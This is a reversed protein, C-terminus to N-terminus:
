PPAFSRRAISWAAQVTDDTDDIDLVIIEFDEFSQQRLNELSRRLLDGGNYIPVGVTIAAM